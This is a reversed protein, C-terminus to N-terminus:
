NEVCLRYEKGRRAVLGPLQVKVGAVHAYTWRYLQNCAHPDNDNLKRAFTSHCFASVGVNYSFSIVAARRSPSMDAHVCKDVGVNVLMLREYLMDKCVDMTAKDGMKVGHTEGFCITPIGVPDLYAYTRVGEASMVCAACIAVWAAAKRKAAM